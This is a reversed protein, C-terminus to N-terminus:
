SKDLKDTIKDQNQLLSKWRQQQVKKVLAVLPLETMAVLHCGTVNERHHSFLYRLIEEYNKGAAVKPATLDIPAFTHDTTDLPTGQGGLRVYNKCARASVHAVRM